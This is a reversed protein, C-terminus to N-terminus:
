VEVIKYAEAIERIIILGKPQLNGQQDTLNHSSLGTIAGGNIIGASVLEGFLNLVISDESQNAVSPTIHRVAEKLIAFRGPTIAHKTVTSDQFESEDIGVNPILDFHKIGFLEGNCRAQVVANVLLDIWGYDLVMTHGSSISVSVGGNSVSLNNTSSPQFEIDEPLEGEHILECRYFKYLIYAVDYQKEKFNVNIGSNGIDSGGHDGFLIKKIRGGVFLTFAERDSMEKSPDEISKTKKKPFTKRSSAAVALMLITLAGLHRGNKALFIADDIQQKVSM